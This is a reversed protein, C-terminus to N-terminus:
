LFMAPVVNGYHSNYIWEPLAMQLKKTKIAIM